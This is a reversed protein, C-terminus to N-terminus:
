EAVSIAGLQQMLSLSDWVGRQEVVKGEAFRLLVMGAVAVPKGTAAIGRLPGQHTGAFTYRIVVTEGEAVVDEVTFCMDPFATTYATYLQTAGTLGHLAGDPTHLVCQAAYLAEILAPTKQNWLEEILQLAIRKPHASM